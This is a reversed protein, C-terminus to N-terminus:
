KQPIQMRILSCRRSFDIGIAIQLSVVRKEIPFDKERVKKLKLVLENANTEIV